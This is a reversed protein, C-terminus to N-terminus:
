PIEFRKHYRTLNQIGNRTVLVTDEIRIGGEPYYYLGPEVTVVMGKELVQDNIAIRPPEHIELGLGHGTGHFFGQMRGNIEGTPFGRKEFLDMISQHINKCAAGHKISRLGLQQAALVAQYMRAIKSPAKGKIFTRTMDGFYGSSDSRPFIDIIIPSNARIPGSGEDHPDCGHKGPAVITRSPLFGRDFVVSNIRKRLTEATLRKGEFELYGKKIKSKKLIQEATRM